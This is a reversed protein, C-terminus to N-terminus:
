FLRFIKIFKFIKILFVANKIFFVCEEYNIIPERRRICLFPRVCAKIIDLLEISISVIQLKITKGDLEITRIKQLCFFIM